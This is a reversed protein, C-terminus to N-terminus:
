PTRNDRSPDDLFRARLHPAPVMCVDRRGFWRYRRAAIADYVRDRIFRPVVVLAYALPWPWALRRAIRLAADSRAYIRGGDILVISDPLAGRVGADRLIARAADSSLAGFRFHARPDRNIVFQVFGNCLNCVGDFLITASV